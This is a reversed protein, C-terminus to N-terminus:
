YVYITDNKEIQYLTEKVKITQPPFTVRIKGPMDDLNLSITSDLNCNPQVEILILSKDDERSNQNHIIHIYGSGGPCSIADFNFRCMKAVDTTTVYPGKTVDNGIVTMSLQLNGKGCGPGEWPVIYATAINGNPRFVFDYSNVYSWSAGPDIVVQTQAPVQQCTSGDPFHTYSIGYPLIIIPLCKLETFNLDVALNTENIKFEAFREFRDLDEQFNSSNRRPLNEQFTVTNFSDETISVNIGGFSAEEQLIRITSHELSIFKYYVRDLISNRNIIDKYELFKTSFASSLSLVTLFILLVILSSVIGKM